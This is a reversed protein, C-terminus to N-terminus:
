SQLLEGLIVWPPSSDGPMTLSSLGNLVDQRPGLNTKEQLDLLSLNFASSNPLNGGSAEQLGRTDGHSQGQTLMGLEVDLMHGKISWNPGPNLQAPRAPIAGQHRGRASSVLGSISSLGLGTDGAQGSTVDINGCPSCSVINCQEKARLRSCKEMSPSVRGQPVRHHREVIEKPQKDGM